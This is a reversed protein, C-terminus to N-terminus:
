KEKMLVVMFFLMDMQGSEARNMKLKRGLQEYRKKPNIAANSFALKALTTAALGRGMVSMHSLILYRILKWYTHHFSTEIIRLLQLSVHHKSEKREKKSVRKIRM